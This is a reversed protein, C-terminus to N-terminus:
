HAWKILRPRFARPSSTPLKALLTKLRAIYAVYEPTGSHAFPSLGIVAYFQPAVGPIGHEVTCPVDHETLYECASAATKPGDYLHIEVYDTGALRAPPHIVPTSDTPPTTTAIAPAASQPGSVDLVEPHAPGQLIAQAGSARRPLHTWAMALGVVLIVAASIIIASTPTLQSSISAARAGIDAPAPKAAPMLRRSLPPPPQPAIVPPAGASKGKYWWAPAPLAGGQRALRKDKQIVEFLAVSHKRKAM